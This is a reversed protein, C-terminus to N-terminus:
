AETELAPEKVQLSAKNLTRRLLFKTEDKAFGINRMPKWQMLGRHKRHLGDKKENYLMIQKLPNKSQMIQHGKAYLNESEPQDLGSVEHLGISSSESSFSGEDSGYSNSTNEFINSIEDRSSKRAMKKHKDDAYVKQDSDFLGTMDTNLKKQEMYKEMENKSSNPSLEQDQFLSTTYFRQMEPSLDKTVHTGRLGECNCAEWTEQTERSDNDTVFKKHDDDIGAKFRASFVLRGLEEVQLDSIDKFNEETVYNQTLRMGNDTKWIPIDIDQKINDELHDLWFVAYADTKLKKAVHFEFVIPSRYRYFVPLRMCFKENGNSTGWFVSNGIETRQCQSRPISGSSGGTRMKLKCNKEYGNALLSRSTIEFTGVDWGLQRPQLLIETSRFLLSIRIHGYGIGGIIPYWRTVQSSTQLIDSVKLSVLGLIPDHERMRQDRVTITVIASRWDRIFRETGTNFIPRSSIVKTRTRYVLEDNTHITCYSSPLSKHEEQEIESSKQAPEYERGKRKGNSGKINELELNVINHIVISCIGSPWLPDPPTHVVADETANNLTGKSDQLEKMNRLEDSLNIDKGDTRLSPRFQSKPFYGIEWHLEGPMSCSKKLAKLNSVQPYMKRPHQIIKQLSLELKGILDDSTSRDCDWLELSVQEDVKILDPNILIACSEEWIPNLDDQIIRTSYIPKRYKSFSVTVYSDSGGGESGRYDQKSLGIAKHIIIWLIGLAKVEKIIDDGQLIKRLDLTMSKPAVYENAASTISKNVFNSILPLNFVNIGTQAMPICGVQIHPLGMLTFTLAMLFPPEPSMQFRLRITGTLGQLEVFVPLPVGFLGKIGIYFIIRMHMNRTKELFDDTSSKSYYSFACELNYHSSGEEDARVQHSSKNKMDQSHINDKLEMVSSDPLARLSLIRFPNNGQNIEAVRVNEIIDPASAQMIDELMDSISSFKEPDILGWTVGLFSNIWEVSEPILNSNIYQGRKCESQWQNSRGKQVLDKMWLFIGSTICLSLPILGYLSGGVLKGFFLISMVITVCLVNTSKELSEYLPEYSVSNTPHSLLTNKQCNIPVDSTSNSGSPDPSTIEHGERYQEDSQSSDTKATNVRKISENPTSLKPLKASEMSGLNSDEIEVENGTIPDIVTRRSIHGKISRSAQKENPSNINKNRAQKDIEEDREKKDDDLSELLKTFTPVPNSGSYPGNM